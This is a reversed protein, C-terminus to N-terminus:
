DNQILIYKHILNNSFRKLNISIITSFISLICNNNNNNNNFTINSLISLLFQNEDINNM